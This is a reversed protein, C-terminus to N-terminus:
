HGPVITWDADANELREVKWYGDYMGGVLQCLTWQFVAEEKGHDGVVLTRVKWATEAVQPAVLGPTLPAGPLQARDCWRM